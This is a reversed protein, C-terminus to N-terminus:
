WMYQCHERETQFDTTASSLLYRGTKLHNSTKQGPPQPSNSNFTLCGQELDFQVWSLTSLVKKEQETEFQVWFFPEWLCVIAKVRGTEFHVWFPELLSVIAPAQEHTEPRPRRRRRGLSSSSTSLPPFSPLSISAAATGARRPTPSPSIM